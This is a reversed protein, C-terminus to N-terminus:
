EEDKGSRVRCCPASFRTRRTRVVDIMCSLCEAICPCTLEYFVHVGERRNQILGANKLVSLHKSITSIDFDFLDFIEGAPLEGEQLSYIITLRTPHAIAKLIEAHTSMSTSSQESHRM